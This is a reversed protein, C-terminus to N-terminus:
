AVKEKNNDVQKLIDKLASRMGEELTPHYFPMDLMEAASMHSEIALAIIHALHEGETVMLECGRIKGDSKNAYIHIRGENAQKITARGQDEFSAEGTVTDANRLAHKSEGIVAINPDTFIIALPVMRPKIYDDKGLAYIAARKGEDAAEHLVAREDTVDGAMYLSTGPINMTYRNYHPVELSCMPVGIKRFGIQQTNPKRGTCMLILDVEAIKGDDTKLILTKDSNYALDVGSNLHLDLDQRMVEHLKQCIVNDHLGGLKDGKDVATVKIGLKALAQAMELGIYGLGIVGMRKPLDKQEFLNDTTIINDKFDEFEKPIIPSSGTAVIISKAHMLKSDVRVSNESELRAKGQIIHPKYKELSEDVSQVFYDRKERVKKLIEPIDPSLHQSGKIGMDAMKKRQDYLNAAHILTKSPMCGTRACTTGTPGDHILLVNTTHKYAEKLATLGATGAGIIILDFTYKTRPM